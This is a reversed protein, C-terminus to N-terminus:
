DDQLTYVVEVITEHPIASNDVEITWQTYALGDFELMGPMNIHYPEGNVVIDSRLACDDAYEDGLEACSIPFRQPDPMQIGIHVYEYDMEPSITITGDNPFPYTYQILKM